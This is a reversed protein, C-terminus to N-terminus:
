AAVPHHEEDVRRHQGCRAGLLEREQGPYLRRLAHAAFSRRRHQPVRLEVQLVRKLDIRAGFELLRQIAVETVAPTGQAGQILTEKLAVAPDAAAESLEVAIPHRNLEAIM